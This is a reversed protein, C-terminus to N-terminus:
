WNPPGKAPEQKPWAEWTKANREYFPTLEKGVKLTYAPHYVPDGMDLRAEGGRVSLQVYRTYDHKKTRDNEISLSTGSVTAQGRGIDDLEILPIKGKFLSLRMCEQKDLDLFSASPGDDRNGGRLVIKAEGKSNVIVLERLTAKRGRFSQLALTLWMGIGISLLAVAIIVAALWAKKSM